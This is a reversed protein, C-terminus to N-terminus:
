EEVEVLLQRSRDELVLVVSMAGGLEHSNSGLHITEHILLMYYVVGCLTNRAIHYDITLSHIYLVDFQVLTYKLCLTLLIIHDITCEFAFAILSDSDTCSSLGLSEHSACVVLFPDQVVIHMCQRKTM